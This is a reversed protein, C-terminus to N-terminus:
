IKRILFEVEVPESRWTIEPFLEPDLDIYGAENKDRWQRDCRDPKEYYLCLWRFAGDRAIWGHIKQLSEYEEACKIYGERKDQQEKMPMGDLPYAEFARKEIDTM